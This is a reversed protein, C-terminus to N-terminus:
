AVTTQQMVAAQALSLQSQVANVAELVQVADDFFDQAEIGRHRSAVASGYLGKLQIYTM